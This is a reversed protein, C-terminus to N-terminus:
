ILTLYLWKWSINFLDKSCEHIDSMCMALLHVVIIVVLTTPIYQSQNVALFSSYKQEYLKSFWSHTLNEWYLVYVYLKNCWNQYM